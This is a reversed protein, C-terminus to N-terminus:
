TPWATLMGIRPLSDSPTPRRGSMSTPMEAIPAAKATMAAVEDGQTKTAHKPPTPTRSAACVMIVSASTSVDAAGSPSPRRPRRASLNTGLRRAESSSADVPRCCSVSVSADPPSAASTSRRMPTRNEAAHVVPSTPVTSPTPPAGTTAAPSEIRPARAATAPTYATSKTSTAARMGSVAGETLREDAEEDDDDSCGAVCQHARKPAATRSWRRPAASSNPVGRRRSNNAAFKRTWTAAAPANESMMYQATKLNPKPTAACAAIPRKPSPTTPVATTASWVTPMGPSSSSSSSPGGGGVVVVVRREDSRAHASHM